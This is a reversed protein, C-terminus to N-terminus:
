GIGASPEARGPPLARANPLTMGEPDDVVVTNAMRDWLTQRNAGFILAVSVLWGIGGTMVSLATVVIGRAVFQRLFMRGWGAAHRDALDIVRMGLLQKAPSQGRGWIILAWVLYGVVLTVVVLLGTLLYGGFRKGLSSLRVGVPLADVQGCMQCAIGQGFGAKCNPCIRAPMYGYPAGEPGPWGEVATM